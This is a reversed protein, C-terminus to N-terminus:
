RARADHRRRGRGHCGKLAPPRRCPTRPSTRPRCLPAHLARSACVDPSPRACASSAAGSWCLAPPWPQAATTPAQPGDSLGSERSQRASLQWPGRRAAPACSQTDGALLRLHCRISSTTMTTWTTM